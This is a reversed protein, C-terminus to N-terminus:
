IMQAARPRDYHLGAGDGGMIYYDIFCLRIVRPTITSPVTSFINAAEISATVHVVM